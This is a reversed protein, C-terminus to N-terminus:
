GTTQSNHTLILKNRHPREQAHKLSSHEFGQRGAPYLGPFVQWKFKSDRFPNKHFIGSVQGHNWTYNPSEKLQWYRNGSCPLIALHVRFVINKSSNSPPFPFFIDLAKLPTVIPVEAAMHAQIQLKRYLHIYSSSLHLILKGMACSTSQRTIRVPACVHPFLVHEAKM